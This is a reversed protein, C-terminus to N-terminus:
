GARFLSSEKGDEDVERYPRGNQWVLHGDVIDVVSIRILMFHEPFFAVYVNWYGKAIEIVRDPRKNLSLRTVPSKCRCTVLSVEVAYRFQSM